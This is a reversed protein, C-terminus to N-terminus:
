HHWSEMTKALHAMKRVHESNSNLAANLKSEPIKTGEPVNLARHLGGKNLHMVVRHKSLKVTEKENKPMVKEGEHVLAVGTKKVVGGYKFKNPSAASPGTPATPENANKPEFHTPGSGNGALSKGLGSLLGPGMGELMNGIVQGAPM